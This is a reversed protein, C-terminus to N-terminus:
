QHVTELVPAQPPVTPIAAVTWTGDDDSSAAFGLVHLAVTSLYVPAFDWEDKYGLLRWIGDQGCLSFVGFVQGEYERVSFRLEYTLCDPGLVCVACTQEPRLTMGVRAMGVYTLASEEFLSPKSAVESIINEM